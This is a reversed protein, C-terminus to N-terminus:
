HVNTGQGMNIYDDSQHVNSAAIPHLYMEDISDVTNRRMTQLKHRILQVDGRARMTVATCYAVVDFRSSFGIIVTKKVCHSMLM